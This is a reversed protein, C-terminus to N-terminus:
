EVVWVIFLSTCSLHEKITSEKILRHKSNRLGTPEYLKFIFLWRVLDVDDMNDHEESLNCIEVKGKVEKDNGNIHGKWKLTIEWEYFFIQFLYQVSGFHLCTNLFLMAEEYRQDVNAEVYAENITLDMRWLFWEGGSLLGWRCSILWIQPKEFGIYKM